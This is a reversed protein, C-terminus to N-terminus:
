RIKALHRRHEQNSQRDGRLRGQKAPRGIAHCRGTAYQVLGDHIEYAVLQREQDQVAITHRLLEQEEELEDSARKRDSIDTSVGGVATVNGAADFIPFKVSVYTHPGDDHPVVEEFELPEGTEQVRRDNARITTVVDPPLVDADTKGVIQQQTIGFLDEYRRNILLYRGALDKLYIVASTNDMIGKLRSENLRVADEAEKRATIEMVMGIFRVVRRDPMEGEFFAQGRVTFWHVSRDPWVLRCNVEYSGDGHPDFAQRRAAKVRELDDPHLRDGFAFHTVDADAPLGYM